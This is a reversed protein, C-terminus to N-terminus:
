GGGLAGHRGAGIHIRLMKLRREAGVSDPWVQKAFGMYEANPLWTHLEELGVLVPPPLPPTRQM